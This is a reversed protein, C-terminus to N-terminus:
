RLINDTERQKQERKQGGSNLLTPSCLGEGELKIEAIHWNRLASLDLIIEIKIAHM